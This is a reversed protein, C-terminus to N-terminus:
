RWWRAAPGESVEGMAREHAIQDDSRHVAHPQQSM